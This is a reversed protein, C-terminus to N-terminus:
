AAPLYFHPNYPIGDILLEYHLISEKAGETEPLVAVTEGKKVHKELVLDTPVASEGFSLRSVFGEDHRIEIVFGLGPRKGLFIITGAEPAVVRTGPAAAYDVGYCMSGTALGFKRTIRGRIPAAFSLSAPAPGAEGEEAAPDAPDFKDPLRYAGVLTYQAIGTQVPTRLTETESVALGGKYLTEIYVLTRSAVGFRRFMRAGEPLLATRETQPAPTEVVADVRAVTRHVPILLRNKRLRNIAVDFEVYEASGDAPVTSLEADISATLLVANDSLNERACEDLYIRVLQDAVERGAVAFLPAGNVLITVAKEPYVPTPTAIIHVPTPVPTRMVVDDEETKPEPTIVTLPVDSVPKIMGKRFLLPLMVALAALILAFSLILIVRKTTEKM